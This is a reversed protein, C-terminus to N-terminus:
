QSIADSPPTNAKPSAWKSPEPVPMTSPVTTATADYNAAPGQGGDVTATLPVGITDRRTLRSSAREMALRWGRPRVEIWHMTQPDRGLTRKYEQDGAMLEYVELGDALHREIALWQALYGPRDNPKLAGYDLGGNYFYARGRWVLNYLYGITLDGAAVRMLQTFGTPTGRRILDRHFACFFRSAFAGTQGKGDWHREHLLRMEDLWALATDADSAVDLRLEGLAEYQRRTRRLGPRTRSGLQSPYDAQTRRLEALDVVYCPSSAVSFADLHPPLGARVAGPATCGSIRLRRWSRGEASVADFLAGYGVAERGRRVLLGGYELTIADVDSDGTEQLALSRAGFVRRLGREPVDALLGLALPGEDDGARFVRPRCTPPLNDLWTSVWPWAVFPSCDARDALAEWEAALDPCGDLTILEARVNARGRAADAGVPERKALTVPPGGGVDGIAAEAV